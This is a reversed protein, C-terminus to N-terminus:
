WSGYIGGFDILLKYSIATIAIIVLVHVIQPTTVYVKRCGIFHENMVYCLLGMIKKKSTGNMSTCM